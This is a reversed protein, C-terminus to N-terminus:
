MEDAIVGCAFFYACIRWLNVEILRKAFVLVKCFKVCVCWVIKKYENPVYIEVFLFKLNILPRLTHQFIM